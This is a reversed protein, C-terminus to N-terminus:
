GFGVAMPYLTQLIKWGFRDSLWIKTIQAHESAREAKTKTM